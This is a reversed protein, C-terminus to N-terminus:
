KFPEGTVWAVLSYRTGKTVPKVGHLVYSPFAIAKGQAKDMVDPKGGFILELDGGEYDSPDSLQITISLKRITKGFMKDIHKSYHGGPSEYETFQFGETFGFLSFNFYERNLQEVVDTMRYFIWNHEDSPFIWSTKSERIKKISTKADGVLAEHMYQEKGLEIIKKCEQPTFVTNAFDWGHTKDINFPWSNNQLGENKTLTKTIKKM